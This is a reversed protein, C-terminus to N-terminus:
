ALALVKLVNKVPICVFLIVDSAFVQLEPVMM